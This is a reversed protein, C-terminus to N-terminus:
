TGLDGAQFFHADGGDLLPYTGVQGKSPMVVEDGLQLPEDSVMREPLPRPSVQHNGQVTRAALTVRERSVLSRTLHEGCFEPDIWRGLKLVDLLLNEPLIDREVEATLGQAPVPEELEQSLSAEACHVPRELRLHPALDRDLDDVRPKGVVRLEDAAERGLGLKHSTHLM